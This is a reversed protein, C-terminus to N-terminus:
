TKLPSVASLPLYAKVKRCLLSFFVAVRNKECRECVAELGNFSSGNILLRTGPEYFVETESAEPLLVFGSEDLGQLMGEVWGVPLPTANDETSGLVKVVGRTGNISRWKDVLVDFEVFLYSPYLPYTKVVVKKGKVVRRRFAPFFVRLGQDRLNDRSAIEFNPKTQVVYWRLM